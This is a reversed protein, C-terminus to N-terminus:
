AQTGQNAPKSAQDLVKEARRVRWNDIRGGVARVDGQCSQVALGAATAGIGALAVKGLFKLGQLWM